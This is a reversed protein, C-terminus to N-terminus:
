LYNIMIHLIASPPPTYISTHHFNKSYICMMECLKGKFDTQCSQPLVHMAVVFAQHHQWHKEALQAAIAAQAALSKNMSYQRDCCDDNVALDRSGDGGGGVDVYVDNAGNTWLEKTIVIMMKQWTQSGVLVRKKQCLVVIRMMQWLTSVAVQRVHFLWVSNCVM